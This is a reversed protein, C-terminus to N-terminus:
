TQSTELNNVFNLSHAKLKDEVADRVADYATQNLEFTQSAKSVKIFTAQRKFILCNSSEDKTKYSVFALDINVDTGDGYTSIDFSGKPEKSLHHNYVKFWSSEGVAPKASNIFKLIKDLVDSDVLLKIADVLANRGDIQDSKDIDRGSDVSKLHFGLNELVRAYELYWEKMEEYKDYKGNAAYQALLCCNELDIREQDTLGADMTVQTEDVEVRKSVKVSETTIVDDDANGESHQGEVGNSSASYAILVNQIM